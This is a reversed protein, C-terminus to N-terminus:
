PGNQDDLPGLDDIEGPEAFEGPEVLDGPEAFNEPAAADDTFDEAFDDGLPRDAGHNTAAM